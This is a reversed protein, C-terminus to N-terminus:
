ATKKRREQRALNLSGVADQTVMNVPASHCHRDAITNAIEQLLYELAEDADEDVLQERGWGDHAYIRKLLTLAKQSLAM